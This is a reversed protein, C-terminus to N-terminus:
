RRIRRLTRGERRVAVDLKMEGIRHTACSLCPDYCRIGFEVANLFAEDPQDMYKQASMGITENIASLNQQTAILLNAEKVVANGDVKYDHILVGRPAEVHAAGDRPSDLGARIDEKYLDPDSVIQELKEMAYLVEIMRAQHYMVTQHCPNGGAERYKELEANAAPTEIKEACNLRALPGVRYSVEEEGEKFSVCKGYSGGRTKEHLYLAWNEASFDFCSGDPRRLRLEGDYFDLREENVTGLYHTELPLSRMLKENTQFIQRSAEYLKRSLKVGEGVYKKLKEAKEPGLPAAMGGAVCSVPHTGRGGVLEVIKQGISRLRLAKKSLEPHKKAMGIINRESRESALGFILDPGALAFFHVAHSHVMAGLNLTNRLLEATRPITAGFVRDVAKSAALHHTQPCTGCIRATVTPMMEVHMGQLFTEFGRFDMVKFVVGAISDDEDIELDVRAHGEIRTVPDITVQRSM